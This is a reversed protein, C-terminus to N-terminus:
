PEAHEICVPLVLRLTAGSQCPVVEATGGHAEAVQRVIALGLGSGPHARAAPSRYFRDFVFELDSEPIGPGTDAVDLIGAKVSIRVRGGSPSWKVANDVLNAVARELADPDGHVLTPTCTLEFGIKPARRAARAAVREAVLDLRVDETHFAPQGYRALDVLDNVLTKLEGAQGLAEAALLPAQADALNEALLELNVTLSTLPTRLEHSADAVLRRQAGVSEDLAATMAAFASGLRGIEDRSDAPIPITLDGTTRILEVTETLRGVPRLVRRAALRSALAALLGAVVTSGGLLWALGRLTPVPDAVPIATRVLAGPSDPFQATYVRYAVGKYVADRFYAPATGNAVAVDRATLDVFETSPGAQVPDPVIQLQTNGIGLPVAPFDPQANSRNWKTKIARAVEPAQGVAVVLSSDLQGRLNAEVAPYLIVSVLVLAGAVVSGGAIALRTRLNM